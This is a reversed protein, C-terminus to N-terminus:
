CMTPKQYTNTLHIFSISKCPEDHHKLCVRAQSLHVESAGLAQRGRTRLLGAEAPVTEAMRVGTTSPSNYVVSESVFILRLGSLRGQVFYLIYSEYLQSSM